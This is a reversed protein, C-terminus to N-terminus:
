EENDGMDPATGYNRLTEEVEAKQVETLKMSFLQSMTMERPNSLTNFKTRSTEWGQHPREAAENQAESPLTTKQLDREYFVASSCAQPPTRKLPPPM